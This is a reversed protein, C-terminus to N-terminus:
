LYDFNRPKCSLRDLVSATCVNRRMDMPGGEIRSGRGVRSFECYIIADEGSEYSLEKMGDNTKTVQRGDAKRM